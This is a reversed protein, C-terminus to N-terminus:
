DNKKCLDKSLKSTPFILYFGADDAFVSLYNNIFLYYFITEIQEDPIDIMLVYGDYGDNKCYLHIFDILNRTQYEHTVNKDLHFAYREENSLIIQQNLAKTLFTKYDMDFSNENYLERLEMVDLLLIENKEGKCFFSYRFFWSPFDPDEESISEIICKDFQIHKNCSAINFVIILIVILNKM